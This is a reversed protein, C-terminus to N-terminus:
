QMQSIKCSKTYSPRYSGNALRCTTFSAIL